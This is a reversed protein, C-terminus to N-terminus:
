FFSSKDTVTGVHDHTISMRRSLSLSLSAVHLCVKAFHTDMLQKAHKVVWKQMEEKVNEPNHHALYPNASIMALEAQKEEESKERSCASGFVVSIAATRQLELHHIRNSLFSEVYPPKISAAALTEVENIVGERRFYKIFIDPLKQMLIEALVLGRVVASQDSGSTGLLHALFSYFAISQAGV